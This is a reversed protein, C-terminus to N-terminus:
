DQLCFQIKNMKATMTLLLGHGIKEEEAMTM